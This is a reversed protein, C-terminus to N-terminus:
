YRSFVTKMSEGVSSESKQTVDMITTLYGIYKNMSVGAMQASNNARSMAEAIGGASAAAAMDVATLKDVVEMVEKAEIKWGKLVSILYSTAQSSDIMGLTSLHMSANTLESAEQGEYGARLWDNAANAVELTSKGVTKALDNFDLMMSKINTYTLGSAIQLDVMSANLQEAYNILQSYAMRIKGIVAYAM